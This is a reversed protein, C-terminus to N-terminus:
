VRAADSQPPTASSEVYRLYTRWDGHHTIDEGNRWADMACGFGVVESSDALTVRGLAMPSPLSALFDGLMATSILWLEGGIAAGEDPGVRVLGPKPPTTNLRALRYLPATRVPGMWRAGRDAMQSALPQGRLHAGVVLLPTVSLGSRAPWPAQPPEVKAAAAGPL